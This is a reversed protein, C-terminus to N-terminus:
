TWTAQRLARRRVLRPPGRGFRRLGDRAARGAALGVEHQGVEARDLEEADVPAGEEHEADDDAREAEAEPHPNVRLELVQGDVARHAFDGLQDVLGALGVEDRLPAEDHDQPEEDPGDGGDVEAEEGLGDVGRGAGDLVAEGRELHM